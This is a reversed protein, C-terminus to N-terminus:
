VNEKLYEILCSIPDIVRKRILQEDAIIPLETCGLLVSECFMEDVFRAFEEKDSKSLKGTKVVEIYGRLQQMQKENPYVKNVDPLAKDWVGADISGETCLVLLKEEPVIEKKILKRLDVIKEQCPMQELFNHATMCGMFIIEAGSDALARVSRQMQLVLEDVKENYLIARVRSPMICNNDIIIRPREWEKDAPFADVLRKFIDVTAYSGMGGLIGITKM